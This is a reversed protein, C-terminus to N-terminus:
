NAPLGYSPFSQYSFRRGICIVNGSVDIHAAYGPMYSSSQYDFSLIGHATREFPFNFALKSAAPECGDDQGTFNGYTGSGVSAVFTELQEITAPLPLSPMGPKPTFVGPANM